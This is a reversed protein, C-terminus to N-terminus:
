LEGRLRLYEYAVLSAPLETSSAVREFIRALSRESAEDLSRGEPFLKSHTESILQLMERLYRAKYQPLARNPYALFRRLAQESVSEWSEERATDKTKELAAERALRTAEERKKHNEWDQLTSGEVVQFTTPQGAIDSLVREIIHRHEGILLNGSLHYQGPAFGLVLSNGDSLIPTAGELSQWFSIHHVRRKLDETAATWLQTPNVAETM